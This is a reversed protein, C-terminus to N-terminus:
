KIILRKTGLLQRDSRVTVFYMGDALDQIPVEFHNNDSSRKGLEVHKVRQGILNYVSLSYHNTEPFSVTMNIIYTAPNPYLNFELNGKSISAIDSTTSSLAMVSGVGGAYLRNGGVILPSNTLRMYLLKITYVSDGTTIDHVYLDVKSTNLDFVKDHIILPSHFSSAPLQKSWQLDATKLDISKIYFSENPPVYTKFILQQDGVALRGTLWQDEGVNAKWKESGNSKRMAYINEHYGVFVLSDNGTVSAFNRAKLYSKWNVVGTLKDASALTDKEVYFVHKDDLLPSINESDSIKNAWITAGNTLNLCYMSDVLIYILGNEVLPHRNYLSSFPKSWIQIGTMRNLAYLADGSQGGLLIISDQITPTFGVSGRSEPIEFTWLLEENETNIAKIINPEGQLGVYLIGQYYALVSTHGGVSYRHAIELPPFIDVSFNLQRGPDGDVMAWNYSEGNEPQASLPDLPYAFVLVIWILIPYRNKM